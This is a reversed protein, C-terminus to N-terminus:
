EAASNDQKLVMNIADDNYSIDQIGRAGKYLSEQARSASFRSLQSAVFSEYAQKTKEDSGEEASNEVKRLVALSELKGNKAIIGSNEPKLPIAFVRAAFEPSLDQSGRTVVVDDKVQVKEPVAAKPDAKLAKEYDSLIKVAAASAKDDYALEQAKAKVQDYPLLKEPSYKSVNIVAAAGDGLSIVQSNQNSTRNEEKFAAKQVEQTSLPWELGQQGYSVDGSDQVKVNLAKATADLSDPNEYSVDALKAAQEDYAKRAAAALAAERAKEKMDAFPPVHAATVGNLCIFHAGYDDYIVESVDGPNKLAFLAKSLNDALKGETVDGLAGGDKATNPDDSYERALDAFNKGTKLGEEVKAVKEKQGEGNKILIHSASRSEPLTFEDQHMNFYDEADKDSVNLSKRLEDVSLVVYTFHVKAPDMFADHHADYFAKAEDESVKVTDKLALPDVSYLSVRRQQEFLSSLTASEYPLAAASANVVPDAVTNALLMVRVQEAYSEPSQGVNRVSALYIDNSFKGDKQFAPTRRIVDKVQEDGIRIGSNWTAGNLAVQDIMSELVKMHLEHVFEKDELMTAAQPGYNRQLTQTERNYQETWDSATIKFDGIKVPDTNLRPILYNGVGAFIFSLIIIWFLIKFIRGHAGERLTDSLM